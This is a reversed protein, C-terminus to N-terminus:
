LRVDMEPPCQAAPTLRTGQELLRYAEPGIWYHGVKVYEKTLARWFQKCAALATQKGTGIRGPILTKRGYRGAPRFAFATSNRRLDVAYLVGGAKQPEQNVAIRKGAAVVLYSPTQMYHAERAIGLDPLESASSFVTPEPHEFMGELVYQLKVQSELALLNPLQDRRTAFFERGFTKM